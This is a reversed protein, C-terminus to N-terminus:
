AHERNRYRNLLLTGSLSLLSFLLFAGEPGTEPLPAASHFERGSALMSRLVLPASPSLVLFLSPEPAIMAPPFSPSSPPPALPPILLPSVEEQTEERPTIQWDAPIEPLPPPPTYNPFPSRPPLSSPSLRPSTIPLPPLTTSPSPVPLPSPSTALPGAEEEGGQPSSPLTSSPSPLPQVQATSEEITLRLPQPFSFSV